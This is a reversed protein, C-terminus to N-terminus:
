LSMKHKQFQKLDELLKDKINIQEELLGKLSENKARMEDITKKDKQANKAMRAIEEKQGKILNLNESTIDKYYTKLEAFAKEHNRLM